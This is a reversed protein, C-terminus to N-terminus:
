ASPSVMAFFIALIMKCLIGLNETIIQDQNIVELDHGPLLQDTEALGVLLDEVHCLHHLEDPDTLHGFTLKEELYTHSQM